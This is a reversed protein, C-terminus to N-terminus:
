KKETEKEIPIPLWKKLLTEVDSSEPVGVWEPRESDPYLFVYNRCKWCFSTSLVCRDGINFRVGHAPHHCWAGGSYDESHRLLGVVAKTLVKAEEPTMTRTAVIECSMDYPAIVFRKKLDVSEGNLDTMTPALQYAEVQNSMGVVEAIRARYDAKVKAKEKGFKRNASLILKGEPPLGSTDIGQPLDLPESMSHDTAVGIGSLVLLVFLAANISIKVNLMDQPSQKSGGVSM